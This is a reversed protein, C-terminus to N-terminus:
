EESFSCSESYYGNSTGYWRVTVYGKVTALKYFTWTESEPVYDDPSRAPPEYDIAEAMVIPSGVLDQLDGAVDEIYVSECCNQSHYMLFQRGEESIFSIRDCDTKTVEVLTLGVLDNISAFHNRTM